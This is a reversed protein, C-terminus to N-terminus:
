HHAPELMAEAARSVAVEGLMTDLREIDFRSALNQRVWTAAALSSAEAQGQTQFTSVTVLTGDGGDLVEYGMFGDMEQVEEAFGMDVEHLMTDMSGGSVRYRRITAYM